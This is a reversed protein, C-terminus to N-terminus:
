SWRRRMKRSHLRWALRLILVVATDSETFFLIRLKIHMVWGLKSPHKSSITSSPPFAPAPTNIIKQQSGTRLSHNAAICIPNMIFEAGLECERSHAPALAENRLDHPLDSVRRTVNHLTEMRVDVLLAHGACQNSTDSLPLM